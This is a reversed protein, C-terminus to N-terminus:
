GQLRPLLSYDTDEETLGSTNWNRLLQSQERATHYSQGTTTLDRLVIVESNPFFTWHSLQALDVDRSTLLLVSSAWIQFPVQHIGSSLMHQIRPSSLTMIHSRRQWLPLTNRHPLGSEPRRLKCASGHHRVTLQRCAFPLPVCQRLDTPNRRSLYPLSELNTLLILSM